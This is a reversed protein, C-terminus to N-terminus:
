ANQLEMITAAIDGKNKKLAVLADEHNVNTQEVVTKIDEESIDPESSSEREEVEGSIQYTEKGAMDVKLVEPNNVIIEKDKCKIIVESADIEEQKIGLKKMAKLMERSNLGPIM